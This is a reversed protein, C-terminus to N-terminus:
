ETIQPMFMNGVESITIQSFNGLTFAEFLMSLMLIIQCETLGIHLGGVWQSTRLVAVHYEEWNAGFFVGLISFM